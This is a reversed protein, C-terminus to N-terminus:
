EAEEVKGDDGESDEEEKSITTGRRGAMKAEKVREFVSKQLDADKLAETIADKSSYKQDDLIWTRNNPRSIVGYRAGIDRIEENKNIIGKTYDISFLGVRFPPAKKNKIVKARITHGIRTKDDDFIQTEKGGVIGLNLAIAEAHKIARGGPSIEPNGYMVGPQTRIQNIVIFLVGTASLLPTLKRLEPPLFRALLAMNDKGSISTEEAPPQITALSDLVIIGLGTGGTQLEIDLIGPKTKKVIGREDRKIGDKGRKAPVGVLRDFIATAKNERYVYLRSLDVGLGEAWNQEFSFESDIYVAWNQSDEKQWEAITTLALLTKGSSEIGALQVLHGRPLGWIGLADDLAYSGTSIVDSYTTMESNGQFLGEPGHQKELMKWVDAMNKKAM